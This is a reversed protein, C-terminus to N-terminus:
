KSSPKWYCFSTVSNHRYPPLTATNHHLRATYHRMGGESCPVVFAWVLFVTMPPCLSGVNSWSPVLRSLPRPSSTRWRDKGGAWQRGPSKPCWNTNIKLKKKKKEKRKREKREKRKERGKRSQKTTRLKKPVSQWAGGYVHMPARNVPRGKFGGRNRLHYVMLRGRSM